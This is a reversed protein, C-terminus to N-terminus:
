RYKGLIWKAPKRIIPIKVHKGTRSGVVMDYDADNYKKILLNIEKIDYTGDADIICIYEMKTKLIAAKISAGYGRNKTHNILEINKIDTIAHLREATKDTSGDNIVIISYNINLTELHTSIQNITKQIEDQENYVPIIICINNLNKM